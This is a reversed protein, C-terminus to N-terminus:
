YIYKITISSISDPNYDAYPNSDTDDGPEDQMESWEMFDDKMDLLMGKVFELITKENVVFDLPSIRTHERGKKDYVTVIIGRPPKGGKRNLQKNIAKNAEKNFLAIKKDVSRVGSFHFDTQEKNRQRKEVILKGSIKSPKVGKSTSTKSVRKRYTKPIAKNEVITKQVSKKGKKHGTEKTAKGKSYKQRDTRVSKRETNSASTKGETKNVYSQILKTFLKQDAKKQAASRARIPSVNSRKKAM